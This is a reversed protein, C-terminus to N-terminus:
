GLVGLAELDARLADVGTFPLAHLGARRAGTVNAATDDVFLCGAPEVGLAAVVTGFAGPDPKAQGLRSSNFVQDFADGLGCAVLDAELRTSANSFLVVRVRGAARVEAALAVVEPDIRWPLDLFGRALAAADTGHARAARDGIQAAWAEADYVGIMAGGLLEEAFAITALDSRSLGHDLALGVFADVDWHRIVGDLDLILVDLAPRGATV